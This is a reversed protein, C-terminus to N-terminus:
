SFKRQSHISGARGVLIMGVLIAFFASLYFVVQMGSPAADYGILVHLLVGIPSRDSLLSSTDWAPSALSPLKDAQVLFRAMQSAMSAALFLILGSTASFFWKAPIRLFGAYLVLGAIAGLCLGAAGGAIIAGITQQGGVIVGYLFLVTESGERLVALAIVIALTSMEREGSSVDAGLQKADNVLERAHRSMWINHWALMLVALGLVGANFLEQGSGEALESIQGTLAAVLASGAIGALIGIMIWRARHPMGRTAAAIIGIILAAELVERFVILTSSFM